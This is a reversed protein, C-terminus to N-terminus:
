RRPIRVTTGARLRRAQAETWGNLALIETWRAGKGLHERALDWLTEREKLLVTFFEPEPPPEPQLEPEPPPAVPEMPATEQPPPAPPPEPEPLMGLAQLADRLSPNDGGLEIVLM